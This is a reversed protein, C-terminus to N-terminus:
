QSERWNNGNNALEMVIKRDEKILTEGEWGEGQPAAGKNSRQLQRPMGNWIWCFTLPSDGLSCHANQSQARPPINFGIGQKWSGSFATNEKNKM